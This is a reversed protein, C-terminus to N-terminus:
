REVLTFNGSFITRELGGGDTWYCHWEYTGEAIGDTITDALTFALKGDTGDTVFGVTIETPTDTEVYAKFTYASVDMNLTVIMNLDDGQVMEIDLQAPLASYLSM